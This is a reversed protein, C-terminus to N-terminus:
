WSWSARNFPYEKKDYIDKWKMYGHTAARHKESSKGIEKEYKIKESALIDLIPRASLWRLHHKM